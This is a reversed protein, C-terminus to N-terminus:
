PYQPQNDHQSLNLIGHITGRPLTLLNVFYMFNANAKRSSLRVDVFKSSQMARM